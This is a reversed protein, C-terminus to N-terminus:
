LAVHDNNYRKEGMSINKYGRVILKGKMQGHGSGCYVSCRFELEGQKDPTSEITTIKGKIM